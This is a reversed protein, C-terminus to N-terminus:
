KDREAYVRIERVPERSDNCVIIIDKGFTQIDNYKLSVTLTASEDPQLTKKDIEIQLRPDDCGISHLTLPSKGTNTLTLRRSENKHGGFGMFGRNKKIKGFNLITESIQMAAGNQREAPTMKSFADVFHISVPLTEVSTKGSATVTKWELLHLKRGRTHAQNGDVTIKFREAKGSKLQQPAEVTIYPPINGLLLTADEDAFNRIWVNQTQNQEPQVTFTFMKREIQTIGITDALSRALNHEVPVVDGKITLRQRFREENTYVTVTKTFPGPRNKAVYTIVVDGTQGPLIPDKTWEPETCGCSSQVHSIVLPAAGTNKVRYVHTADIDEENILGFDFVPNDVAFIPKGESELAVTGKITLMYPEQSADSYIHITKEFPGPQGAPNFTVRINGTQGAGVPEKTWEPTTCGCSAVVQSITLPANGTNGVVFTHTVEGGKEQISGFDHVPLDVTIVPKNQAWGQESLLICSLLFVTFNRITKAKKTM